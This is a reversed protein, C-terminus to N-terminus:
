NDSILRKNDILYKSYGAVYRMSTKVEDDTLIDRGPRSNCDYVYYEGTESRGVDIGLLGLQPFKIQLIRATAIAIRIMAHIDQDNMGLESLLQQSEATQHTVSQVSGGAHYNTVSAGKKGVRATVSVARWVGTEDRQVTVRFDVPRNKSTSVLPVHQQAMYARHKFAFRLMQVFEEKTVTGNVRHEFFRDGVVRYTNLGTKQVQLMNRGGSGLVPKLWIKEGSELMAFIDHINVKYKTKPLWRLSPPLHTEIHSFVEAKNPLSPNFIPVTLRNFRSLARSYERRFMKLDSLYMADYVAAPHILGNKGAFPMVCQKKEPFLSWGHIRNASVIQKPGTIVLDLNLYHCAEDLWFFIRYRRGNKLKSIDTGTIAILM